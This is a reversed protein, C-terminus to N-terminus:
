KTIMIEKVNLNYSVVNDFNIWVNNCSLFCILEMGPKLNYYNFLRSDKYIKLIPNDLKFPIKVRFTDDVFISKFQDVPLRKNFWDLHFKSAMDKEFDLIKSCFTKCAETPLIKLLLYDKGNEKVIQDLIVKPTQFEFVNDNYAFNILKCDSSINNNGNVVSYKMKRFDVDKLKYKMINFSM